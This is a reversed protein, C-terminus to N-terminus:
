INRILTQYSVRKHKKGPFKASLHDHLANSLAQAVAKTDEYSATGQGMEIRLGRLQERLVRVRAALQDLSVAETNNNTPLM